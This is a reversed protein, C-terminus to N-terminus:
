HRSGSRCCCIARLPPSRASKSPTREWALFGLGGVAFAAAWALSSLATLFGFNSLPGLAGVVLFLIAPILIPKNRKM